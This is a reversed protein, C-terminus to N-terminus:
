RGLMSDIEAEAELWDQLACGEAFGRREARFYAARAVMENRADPDLFAPTASAPGAATSMSEDLAPNIPPAPTKGKGHRRPTATQTAM